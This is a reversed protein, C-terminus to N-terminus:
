TAVFCASQRQPSRKGVKVDFWVPFTRLSVAAEASWERLSQSLLPVSPALFLVSGGPPVLDEAIKFSLYTKGTGCAMM